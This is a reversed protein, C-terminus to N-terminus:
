KVFRESIAMNEVMYFTFLGDTIKIILFIREEEFWLSYHVIHGQQYNKETSYPLHSFYHHLM